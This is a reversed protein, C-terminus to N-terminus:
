PKHPLPEVTGNLFAVLWVNFWGPGIHEYCAMLDRRITKAPRSPCDDFTLEYPEALRLRSRFLSPELKIVATPQPMELYFCNSWREHQEHRLKAQPRVAHASAMVREQHPGIPVGQHALMILAGLVFYALRHWTRSFAAATCRHTAAIASLRLEQNDAQLSDREARVQHLEEALKLREAAEHDRYPGRNPKAEERRTMLQLFAVPVSWLCNLILYALVTWFM